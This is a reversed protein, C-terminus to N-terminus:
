RTIEVDQRFEARHSGSPTVGQPTTPPASPRPPEEDLSQENSEVPSTTETSGYFSDAGYVRRDAKTTKKMNLVCGAVPADVNKLARAATAVQTRTTRGHRIVVVVADAWASAVVADTVPLVPPTDIVIKDFDKRLSEVVDRMRASGLLESPNPPASGSALLFLGGTGWAQLVDDLPVQGALVNTLGVERELDLYDALQPRRLDAEVLLVREGFQAFTLGLNVATTSKGELPVASTVVIVKAPRAADIFQMNTRLQRYAEARASKSEEGIILPSRKTDPDFVITGLVPAEVLREAVDVQRVSTDLLERLFAVLLGLAIGALLGLAVYISRSPAVQTPVTPGSVVNITVIADANRGQNDLEDVMEGFEESLAQAIQGTRQKSEDTVTATVVVTDLEATATVKSALEEPTMELNTSAIVRGALRESSLLLIYSDVRGQAFQGGAQPSTGAIRPTSVYFDVTSAYRPPTLLYAATGLAAGLLTAVAIILWGKRIVALYNRLTM